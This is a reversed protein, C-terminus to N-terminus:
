LPMEHGRLFTRTVRLDDEFVVLNALKGPEISGVMHDIKLLRATNLSTMRFLEPLSCRVFSHFNRAAGAMGLRSGALNGESDISVDRQSGPPEPPDDPRKYGADTIVIIRAPGKAKYLLRAMLPHVHLGKEDPIIEASLEDFVLAAEDIGPCRTGAYAAAKPNGTANSWHTIVTLGKAVADLLQDPTAETHGAAVVVGRSAAHAIFRGAGPLEPACTWWKLVQPLERLLAEYEEPDPNKIMGRSTQAGYKRNIYPGELHVGAIVDKAQPSLSEVFERLQPLLGNVRMDPYGLTAVVTTTGQALLSTVVATPDDFIRTRGDGHCHPDVFGPGVTKGDAEFIRAGPAIAQTSDNIAQIIGNEVIITSNTIIRDRLVVSGGRIILKEIM